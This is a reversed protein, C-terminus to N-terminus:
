GIAVKHRNQRAEGGGQSGQASGGGEGQRALGEIATPAQPAYSM